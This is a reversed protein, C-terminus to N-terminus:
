SQVEELSARVSNGNDSSSHAILRDLGEKAWCMMKQLEEQSKPDTITEDLFKQWATM